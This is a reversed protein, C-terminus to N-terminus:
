FKLSDFLIDYLNFFRPNSLIGAKRIAIYSYVFSFLDSVGVGQSFGISVQEAHTECHGPTATKKLALFDRIERRESPTRQQKFNWKPFQKYIYYAKHDQRAQDSIGAYPRPSLIM